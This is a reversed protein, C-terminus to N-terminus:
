LLRRVGKWYAAIVPNALRAARPLAIMKPDLIPSLYLAVERDRVQRLQQTHRRRRLVWRWHRILWRWGAVKESLWRQKLALAAMAFETGLLVPALLTLLRPSYAALVFVLRNRELLYLKTENRAFEYDHYVDAVPTVVIRLGQLRVRWCLELDEQYMFLPELFGGLRRFLESQIALAAGTAYPVDSIEDIGDAPEGYRGAWALGTVHVVNGGSNLLAPRDLLRLRPMAIGVGPERLTRALGELAGPAVVTDPNLFVLVEGTAERSGFNCGEAFGLNRGPEVVRVCPRKRAEKLEPGSDGNNVVIVEVEAGELPELSDLLRTLADGSRFAVTVVSVSPTM